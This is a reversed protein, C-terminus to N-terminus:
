NKISSNEKELKQFLEGVLREMTSLKAKGEKNKLYKILNNKQREGLLLEVVKTILAPNKEVDALYELLEYDDLAEQKVEYRFGNSLTGKYVM